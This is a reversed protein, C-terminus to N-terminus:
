GRRGHGSAAAGADPALRAALPSALLTPLAAGLFAIAFDPVGPEARGGAAASAALWGAGWTVGLAMFLQQATAAIATASSLRGPPVEVYTLANFSSFQLSRALGGLALVAFVAPLPWAPEFAACAALTVAVIAGNWVLVNRFGYRRLAFSTMPKMAFAGLATALTVTGSLTASAGFGLQLFLPLLFPSAGAGIRFLSGAAVAIRFSAVSFLGLDLAPNPARRSWRIALWGLGAGALLALPPLAPHVVGRGATEAGFMLLALATGTLALGPLDLRPPRAESTAPIFRWVALLGLAAIPLNIWFVARWSLTDTLVGGLPPGIIPGLLGPMSLWTTARVVEEPRVRRLLLLRAVPVMMAGGMGQLVRAAVLEGLGRSLGCLASAIAFVAIALMFVRKAGFRDAVWGSVPIFVTLAVLYATIAASLHLPETGLERAMAPLATAIVSSDLNQMFLASAVIVAVRRADAPPAPAPGGPVGAVGEAADLGSGAM